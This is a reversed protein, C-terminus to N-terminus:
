QWVQELGRIVHFVGDWSRKNAPEHISSIEAMRRASRQRKTSLDRMSAISLRLQLRPRCSSQDDYRALTAQDRGIIAYHGSALEGSDSVLVICLCKGVHMWEHSMRPIPLIRREPCRGNHRPDFSSVEWGSEHWQLRM